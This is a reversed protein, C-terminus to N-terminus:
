PKSQRPPSEIDPLFWNLIAKALDRQDQPLSVEVQEFPLDAAEDYSALGDIPQGGIEVRYAMVHPRMRVTKLPVNTGIYYAFKEERAAREAEPFFVAASMLACGVCAGASEFRIYGRGHPPAFTLTESGDAGSAARILSWGRPVLIWGYSHYYAALRSALAPTLRSGDPPTLDHPDPAFTRWGSDEVGDPMTVQYAPVAVDKGLALDGAAKAVKPREDAKAPNVDLSFTYIETASVQASALALCGLLALTMGRANIVIQRKTSPWPALIV